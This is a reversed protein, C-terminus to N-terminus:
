ILSQMEYVSVLVLEECRFSYALLSGENLGAAQLQLFMSKFPCVTHLLLWQLSQRAQGALGNISHQDM